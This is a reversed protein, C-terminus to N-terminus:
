CVQSWREAWRVLGRDPRRRQPGYLKVRVLMSRLPVSVVSGGVGGSGLIFLPPENLAACARSVARGVAGRELGFGSVDIGLFGGVGFPRVFGVMRM